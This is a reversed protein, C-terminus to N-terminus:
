KTAGVFAKLLEKKSVNYRSSLHKVIEINSQGRFQPLRALQLVNHITAAPEETKKIVYLYDEPMSRKLTRLAENALLQCDYVQDDLAVLEGSEWDKRKIVFLQIFKRKYMREQM